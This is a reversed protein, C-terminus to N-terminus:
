LTEGLEQLSRSLADITGVADEILESRDAMKYLEDFASVDGRMSSIVLNYVSQECVNRPKFTNFASKKMKLLMSAAASMTQAVPPNKVGRPM